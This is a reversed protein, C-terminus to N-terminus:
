MCGAEVAHRGTIDNAASFLRLVQDPSPVLKRPSGVL